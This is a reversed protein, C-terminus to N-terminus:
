NQLVSKSCGWAYADFRHPLYKPLFSATIDTIFNSGLSRAKVRNLQEPVLLISPKLLPTCIEHFKWPSVACSQSSYSIKLSCITESVSLFVFLDKLYNFHM